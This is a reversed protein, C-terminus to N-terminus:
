VLPKSLQYWPHQLGTPAYFHTGICAFGLRTLLSRSAGNRPHHGAYLASAGREHFAVDIVSKAAESAYGNGWFQPLLHFGIEYACESADCAKLGCCGVHEGTTRLFIPWYAIGDSEDNAIERQLRTTVQALTYPGGLYRM